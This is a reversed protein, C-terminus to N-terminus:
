LHHAFRAFMQTCSAMSVLAILVIPGLGMLGLVPLPMPRVLPRRVLRRHVRM